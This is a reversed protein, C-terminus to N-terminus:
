KQLENLDEESFVPKGKVLTKWANLDPFARARTCPHHDYFSPWEAYRQTRYQLHPVRRGASDGFKFAGTTFDFPRIPSEWDDVLENSSPATAGQGCKWPVVLVAAHPLVM